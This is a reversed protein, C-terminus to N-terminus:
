ERALSEVPDLAAAQRAPFYGFGIGILTSVILAAVISAPSFAMHIASSTHGVALGILLALIVGWAGGIVCVLTAEILFQQRIDRQRAGVAMRIGIERTRETVSVLMINMVGIGGVILSIVAISSILLTMTATASEVSKRIDDTDFFFFDKVGHRLTLLDTAAAAAHEMPSDDKVRITISRLSTPGMLRGIVSTYPLWANLNDGGGFSTGTLRAVGVVRAPMAGLLIVQGVPNKDEGFLRKSSNDDIIAVQTLNRVDDATFIQGQLVEFPRVRFYNDAVGNITGSVSVNGFRISATTRVLPTSAEVYPEAGLALADNATLTKISAAKEDGWGHGPYIDLTNAGMARIDELVKERGGIGLAVVSAVSAIGIVIGLMTLCSRLRHARLAGLAAIISARLGAVLEARSSRSDSPIKFPRDHSSIPFSISLRKDAVIAGDALTVIREAHAAVKPDHTVLIITHGEAHLDKLVSLVEEGSHSDLAGTPEDALIIEGGNMLARAISVRQQEGGSLQAPRHHVRDALKFRALLSQARRHREAVDEGAYVAPVEVNALATLSSLLNYRQFIFGFHSCRLEALEDASMHSVDAGAVRYSGATPRDLCGLINMLTSKGSGSPGMIALWEGAQVNLNVDQLAVFSGEGAPYERLAGRLELLPATM